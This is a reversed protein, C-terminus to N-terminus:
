YGPNLAGTILQQKDEVTNGRRLSLRNGLASRSEIFMGTVLESCKGTDRAVVEIFVCRSAMPITYPAVEEIFVCRSAMPITHRAVEPFVCQLTKPSNQSEETM